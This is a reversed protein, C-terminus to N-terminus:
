DKRITMETRPGFWEISNSKVSHVKVGVIKNCGNCMEPDAFSMKRKSMFRGCNKCNM